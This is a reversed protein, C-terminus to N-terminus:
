QYDQIRQRWEKSMIKRLVARSLPERLPSNTAVAFTYAHPHAGTKQITLQLESNKSYLHRLATTSHVFFDLEKSDVAKMGALVEKYTRYNINAKDLFTSAPSNQLVGIKKDKLENPFSISNKTGLVSVIAATLTASIGIAVLMWLMAVIRGGITRPAKDGYGITTMTVGAWWFGAGIGKLISRDGFDEENNNRELLWIIIGVILLLLTLWGVIKLFRPTFLARMLQLIKNQKPLAIGLSTHHYAPAFDMLSDNQATMATYLSVDITGARLHDVLQDSDAIEVLEYQLQLTEAVQRWLDLSIGAWNAADTKFIYPPIEIVGIRLPENVLTPLTNLTSDQASLLPTLLLLLLFNLFRM